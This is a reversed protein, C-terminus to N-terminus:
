NNQAGQLIWNRILDREAQPIQSGGFPMLQGYLGTDEIKNYLVSAPPDLPKVILAPGYSFSTRNVFNDYSSLMGTIESFGDGHCNPNLCGRTNFIARVDNQYSVTTPHPAVMSVPDGMDSCGALILALGAAALVLALRARM